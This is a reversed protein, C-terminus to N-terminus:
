TPLAWPDHPMRPAEDLVKPGKPDPAEKPASRSDREARLIPLMVDIGALLCKEVDGLHNNGKASKWELVKQGKETKTHTLQEDTLQAKYAEGINQPLYWGSGTQKKIKALYLQEKYLDDRLQVAPILIGKHEFHTERVPQFLGHNM